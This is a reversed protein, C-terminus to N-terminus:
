SKKTTWITKIIKLTEEGRRNWGAAFGCNEKITGVKIAAILKLIKGKM